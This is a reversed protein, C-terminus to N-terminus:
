RPKNKTRCPKFGLSSASSSAPFLALILSRVSLTGLGVDTVSGLASGRRMRDRTTFIRLKEPSHYVGVTASRVCYVSGYAMLGIKGSELDHGMDRGTIWNHLAFVTPPLRQLRRATGM